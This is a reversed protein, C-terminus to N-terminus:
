REDWKRSTWWFNARVFDNRTGVTSSTWATTGQVMLRNGPALRIPPMDAAAFIAPTWSPNITGTGLTPQTEPGIVTFGAANLLNAHTGCDLHGRGTLLATDRNGPQPFVWPVTIATAAFVFGGPVTFYDANNVVALHVARVDAPTSGASVVSGDVRWVLFEEDETVNHLAVTHHRSALNPDVGSQWSVGSAGYLVPEYERELQVTPLVGQWIWGLRDFVNWRNRLSLWDRNHPRWGPQSM